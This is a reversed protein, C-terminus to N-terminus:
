RKREDSGDGDKPSTDWTCWDFVEYTDKYTYSFNGQMEIGYGAVGETWCHDRATDSDATTGGRGHPHFSTGHSAFVRMYDDLPCDEFMVGLHRDYWASWGWDVGTANANM